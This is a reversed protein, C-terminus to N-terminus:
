AETEAKEEVNQAANSIEKKVWRGRADRPWDKMEDRMMERHKSMWPLETRYPKTTAPAIRYNDLPWDADDNFAVFVPKMPPWYCVLLCHIRKGEERWTPSSGGYGWCSSGQQLWREGVVWGPRGEAAMRVWTKETSNGHDMMFQRHLVHDVLIIKGMLESVDVRTAKKTM